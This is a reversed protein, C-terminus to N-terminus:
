EKQKKRIDQYREFIDLHCEPLLPRAVTMEQEVKEYDGCLMTSVFEHDYLTKIDPLAEEAGLDLLNSVLQANLYTDTYTAQPFDNNIRKLLTGLWRRAEENREPYLTGMQAVAELIYIKNSIATGYELVYHMLESTNQAGLKVLTPVLTEREYGDLLNDFIDEPLRLVELIAALSTSANGVESLLSISNLVECGRRKKQYAPPMGDAILGLHYMIIHELDQRLTDADHALLKQLDADTLAIGKRANGIIPMIDANEVHLEEPYRPHRYTYPQKWREGNKKDNDMQREMKNWRNGVEELDQSHVIRDGVKITFDYTGKKLNKRMLPVYRRAEDIDKALLFHKGNMGFDYHILPIREDDEELFYQTLAWSPDPAIGAEDAYDIAGYVLNHAENYSIEEMEMGKDDERHIIEDFDDEDLRLHYVSDTLGMCRMDIMYVATSIRGGQHLRSVVVLGFKEEPLNESMYCRGIPIQRMRQKIFKEPSLFQQQKNKKKKQAM